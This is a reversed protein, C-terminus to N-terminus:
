ILFGMYNMEHLNQSHPCSRSWGRDTIRINGCAIRSGAHSSIKLFFHSDHIRHGHEGNRGPQKATVSRAAGSITWTKTFSLPDIWSQVSQDRRCNFSLTKSISPRVALNILGPCPLRFNDTSSFFAWWINGLDGVHRHEISDLRGGHLTGAWLRFIVISFLSFYFYWRLSELPRGSKFLEM